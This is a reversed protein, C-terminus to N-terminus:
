WSMTGFESWSRSEYGLPLVSDCPKILNKTTYAMDTAKKKVDLAAYELAHQELACFNLAALDTAKNISDEQAGYVTADEPAGNVLGHQEMAYIAIHEPTCFETALDMAKKTANVIIALDMAKKTANVIIALDMAKKKVAILDAARNQEDDVEEATDDIEEESEATINALWNPLCHNWQKADFGKKYIKNSDSTLMATKKWQRHAVKMDTTGGGPMLTPEQYLNRAVNLADQLNREM